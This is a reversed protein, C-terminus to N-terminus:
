RNKRPRLNQEIMFYTNRRNDPATHYSHFQKKRSHRSCGGRSVQPKGKPNCMHWQNLEEFIYSQQLKRNKRKDTKTDKGWFEDM